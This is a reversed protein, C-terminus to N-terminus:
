PICSGTWMIGRDEGTWSRMPLNEIHSGFHYMGVQLRVFPTLPAALRVAHHDPVIEGVEWRSTPSFNEGPYADHQGLSKGSSNLVHVFAKWDQDLPSLALWYATVPLIRASPRTALNLSCGLFGVQEQPGVTRLVPRPVVCTSRTHNQWAWLGGWLLLLVLIIGLLARKEGLTFLSMLGVVGLLSLLAGWRRIPTSGFAIDVRHRGAPIPITLLGLRPSPRVSTPLGDVTANWGPFWFQHWRLFTPAPTDVTLRFRTPCIRELRLSRPRVYAIGNTRAIGHRPLWFSERPVHVTTPLYEMLWPDGHERAFLGNIYDYQAMGWSNLDAEVVIRGDPWSLRETPLYLLATASLLLFVLTAAWELSSSGDPRRPLAEALPAAFLAATLGVVSQLRWPFQLFALAHVHTWLPASLELMLLTSLLLLASSLALMHRQDRSSHRVRALAAGGGLVVILASWMSIPHEFPVGQRPYYHYLVFPSLLEHFSALQTAQRTIHQGVVGARIWHVEALAPLWYFASLLLALGFAVLIRSVYLHRKDPALGAVRALAYLFALPFFLFASLNHTLVLATLFLALGFLPHTTERDRLVAQFPHPVNQSPHNKLTSRYREVAYLIWPMLAQAWHEALAARVYANALHYPVFTYVIAVWTAAQTSWHTRAWRYAGLAGVLFSLAFSLKMALFFGAGVWHFLLTLYYTLPAYFNLVPYGYFFGLDPLWRAYLVGGRLVIDLDVLRMLHHFMDHGAWLHPRFLPLIVFLFTLLLWIPAFHGSGFRVL